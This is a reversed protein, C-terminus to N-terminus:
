ENNQFLNKYIYFSYKIYHSYYVKILYAIYVFFLLFIDYILSLIYSFLSEIYLYKFFFKLLFLIKM